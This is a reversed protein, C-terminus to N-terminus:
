KCLTFFEFPVSYIHTSYTKFSKLCFHSLLLDQPSPTRQLSLAILAGQARTERIVGWGIILLFASPSLGEKLSVPFGRFISVFM